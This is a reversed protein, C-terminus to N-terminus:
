GGDPSWRGEEEGILIMDLRIQRKIDHNGIIHKINLLRHLLEHSSPLAPPPRTKTRDLYWNLDILLQPSLNKVHLNSFTRELIDCGSSAHPSVLKYINSLFFVYSLSM